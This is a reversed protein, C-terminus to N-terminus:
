VRFVKGTDLCGGTELTSLHSEGDKRHSEDRLTMPSDKTNMFGLSAPVAQKIFVITQGNM